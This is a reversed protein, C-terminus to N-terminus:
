RRLPVIARLRAKRLFLGLWVLVGVIIPAIFPEGVRVHTATTGGLFGTLLIAGLVATQPIAYLVTCAVEVIGLVLIVNPPYGFHEFGEVALAAKLLKMTGSLLLLLVPLVSIIRGAWLLKTSATAAQDSSM